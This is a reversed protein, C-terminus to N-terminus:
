KSSPGPLLGYAPRNLVQDGQQLPVGPLDQLDLVAVLQAGGPLERVLV